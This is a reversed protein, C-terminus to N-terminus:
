PREEALHPPGWSDSTRERYAITAEADYVTILLEGKIGLAESSVVYTRRNM